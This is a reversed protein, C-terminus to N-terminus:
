RGLRPRHRREGFRGRRGPYEAWIAQLYGAGHEVTVARDFTNSAVISPINYGFSGFTADFQETAANTNTNSFTNGSITDGGATVGIRVASDGSFTNGTIQSNAAELGLSVGSPATGTFQNNIFDVHDSANGVSATGNVYVLQGATGTFSNDRVTDNHQGGGALLGNKGAGASHIVNDRVTIGTNNGELYVAAQGAGNITFGHGSSGISVTGTGSTVKVAGTFGTAQGNITTVSNGNASLLSVSKNIVVDQNYTGDNVWVTSGATAVEVGRSIVDGNIPGAVTATIFADGNRLDAWGKFTAGGPLNKLYDLIRDEAEFAQANTFSSATINTGSSLNWKTNTADARLFGYNDPAFEIFTKQTSTPDLGRFYTNGLNVTSPSSVTSATAGVGDFRLLDGFTGTIKSTASGLKVDILTLSSVDSYDQIGLMSRVYSGSIDVDDFTVNGMAAHGVGTNNNGVGRLQIGVQEGTDGGASGVLTDNTFSADGNYTFLSIDGTGGGGFTGNHSFTSNSVVVNRASM